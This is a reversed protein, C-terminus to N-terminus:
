RQKVAKKQNIKVPARWNESRSTIIPQGLPIINGSPYEIQCVAYADGTIDNTYSRQLFLNASNWRQSPTEVTVFADTSTAGDDDFYHVVLTYLGPQPTSPITIHEPGWGDTDDVDLYANWFTSQNGYYCDLDTFLDDVTAGPPILHLDVDSEPTNWRLKTWLALQPFNGILNISTSGWAPGGNIHTGTATVKVSNNGAVLDINQDFNFSGDYQLTIASGNVTLIASSLSQANKIKGAIRVVRNTIVQNNTVSTIEIPLMQGPDEFLRGEAGRPDPFYELKSIIPNGNYIVEDSLSEPSIAEFSEGVTKGSLMLRYFEKGVPAGKGNVESWGIISQCGKQYLTSKLDISKMGQCAVLYFVANPFADDSYNNKFFKSSISLYQVEVPVGNRVEMITSVAVEGNYWLEYYLGMIEDLFNNIRQGTLLWTVNDGDVNGHTNFFITGYQQLQTQFFTLDAATSNYIDANFGAQSFESQLTTSIQRESIWTEDDFVQNILCVRKNGVIGHEVRDHLNSPPSVSPKEETPDNAEIYPPSYRYPQHLWIEKGGNQYTVVLAYGAVVVKEVGNLNSASQAIEEFAAIPDSSHLALSALSDLTEHAKLLHYKELPSPTEKACGITLIIAIFPLWIKRFLNLNNM